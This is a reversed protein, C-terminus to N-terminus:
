SDYYIAVASATVPKKIRFIGPGALMVSPRYGDIIVRGGADKVPVEVDPSSGNTRFVAVDEDPLLGSTAWVQIASGSAVTIDASTAAATQSAIAETSAM